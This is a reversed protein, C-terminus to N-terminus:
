KPYPSVLLTSYLLEARSSSDIHAKGIKGYTYYSTLNHPGYLVIRSRIFLNVLEQLTAWPILRLLFTLWTMQLHKPFAHPVTLSLSM